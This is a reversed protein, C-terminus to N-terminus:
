KLRYIFEKIQSLPLRLDIKVKDDIKIAYIQKELLKDHRIYITLYCGYKLYDYSINLKTLYKQLYVYNRYIINKFYKVYELHTDVSIFFDIEMSCNLDELMTELYSILQYNSVIYPYVEKNSHLKNIFILNDYDIFMNNDYNYTDYSFVRNYDFCVVYLEPWKKFLHNFKEEELYNDLLSDILIIKVKEEIIEELKLFIRVECKLYHIVKESSEFANKSVYLITNKNMVTHLLLFLLIHEDKMMLLQNKKRKPYLYKIIDDFIESNEKSFRNKKFMKLQPKDLYLM